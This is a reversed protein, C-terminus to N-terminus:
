LRTILAPRRAESAAWIATISSTSRSGAALPWSEPGTWAASSSSSSAAQAPASLAAAEFTAGARLAIVVQAMAEAGFRHLKKKEAACALARRLEEEDM